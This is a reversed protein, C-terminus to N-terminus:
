IVGSLDLSDLLSENYSGSLVHNIFIGQGKLIRYTHAVGAPIFVSAPSEIEQVVDELQVEVKLGTLGPKYGLFLFLSDVHHTHIDVHSPPPEDILPIERVICYQRCDPLIREDLMVYRIGHGSRHYKLETACKVFPKLFLSPLAPLRPSSCQTVMGVSEPAIWNYSTSSRTAAKQHLASTHTFAHRGTVPQMPSVPSRAYAAVRRSLDGILEPSPAPCLGKYHLNILLGLTDTIGVREGLGNVSSSIRDAGADAAALANSMALGRDNHLHVELSTTPFQQKIDKVIQFVQHSELIGLTDSFCICDAGAEKALNYVELLQSYDTRSADEVTYRVKFGLSKAYEISHQIHDLIKPLSWTTTRSLRTEENIGIFLGVWQCGTEKVADIDQLNVRAHTLVPCLNLACIEQVIKKQHPSVIAHGVEIVDVGLAHLSRAIEISQGLTFDIGPPSQIGERLTADVIQIM